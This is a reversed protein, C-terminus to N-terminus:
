QYARDDTQWETQRSTVYTSHSFPVDYPTPSVTSCPSKKYATLLLWTAIAAATKACNADRLKRKCGHEHFCNRVQKSIGSTRRDRYSILLYFVSPCMAILLTRDAKGLSLQAGTKMKKTLTATAHCVYGTWMTYGTSRSSGPGCRARGNIVYLVLSSTPRTGVRCAATRRAICQVDCLKLSLGKVKTVM